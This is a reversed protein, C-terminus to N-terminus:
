FINKFCTKKMCLSLFKFNGNKDPKDDSIPESKVPYQDSMKNTYKEFSSFLNLIKLFLYIGSTLVFM